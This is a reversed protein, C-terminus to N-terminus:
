NALLELLTERLLEQCYEHADNRLWMYVEQPNLVGDNDKDFAAIVEESSRQSYRHDLERVAKDIAHNIKEDTM